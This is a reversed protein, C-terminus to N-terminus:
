EYTVSTVSCQAFSLLGLRHRLANQRHFFNRIIEVDMLARDVSHQLARLKRGEPDTAIPPEVDLGDISPPEARIRAREATHLFASAKSHPIATTSCRDRPAKPAALHAVAFQPRSIMVAKESRHSQPWRFSLRAVHFFQRADPNSATLAEITVIWPTPRRRPRAM